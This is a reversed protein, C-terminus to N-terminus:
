GAPRSVTQFASLTRYPRKNQNRSYCVYKGNLKNAAFVTAVDNNNNNNDNNTRKRAQTEM